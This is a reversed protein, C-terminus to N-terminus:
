APERMWHDVFDVAARMMSCTASGVRHVGGSEVLAVATLQLDADTLDEHAQYGSAERLWKLREEVQDLRVGFDMLTIATGDIQYM